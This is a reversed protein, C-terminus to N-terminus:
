NSTAVITVELASQRGGKDGGVEITTRCCVEFKAVTAVGEQRESTRGKVQVWAGAISWTLELALSAVESPAFFVNPAM